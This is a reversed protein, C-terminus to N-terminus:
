CIWGDRCLFSAGVRFGFRLDVTNGVQKMATIREGGPGDIPFSVSLPKSIKPGFTLPERGDSFRIKIAWLQPKLGQDKSGQQVIIRTVFPLDEGHAGGFLMMSIPINQNYSPYSYDDPYRLGPAKHHFAPLDSHWM